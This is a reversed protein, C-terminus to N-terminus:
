PLSDGRPVAPPGAPAAGPGLRGPRHRDPEGICSMSGAWSRFGCTLPLVVVSVEPGASGAWGRSKPSEPTALVSDESMETVLFVGVLLLAHANKLSKNIPWVQSSKWLFCCCSCGQHLNMCFLIWNREGFHPFCLQEIVPWLLCSM